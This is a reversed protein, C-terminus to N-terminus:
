LGYLKLGVHDVIWRRGAKDIAFYIRGFRNPKTHDDVKIHSFRDWVRGEFTFRHLDRRRLSEDKGAYTLGQVGIWETLSTGVNGGRAKWEGALDALTDLAERMRQFEEYACQEWQRKANPTFVLAGDSDTEWRDWDASFDRTATEEADVPEPEVPAPEPGAGLQATLNAKDVELIRVRQELQENEEWLQLNQMREVALQAELSAIRDSESQAIDDLVTADEAAQVAEWLRDRGRAVVSFPTIIRTLRGLLEDHSGHLAATDWWPNRADLDPWYLRAGDRYLRHQASRDANFSDLALWGSIVVVHALGALQAAARNAFAAPAGTPRMASVALVPLRRQPDTLRRRVDAVQSTLANTVTGTIPDPGDTCALNNDAMVRLLARPPKLDDVRTPTLRGDSRRGLVVRFGTAGGHEAATLECVFRGGTDLEHEITLRLGRTHDDVVTPRWELHNDAWEPRRNPVVTRGPGALLDAPGLRTASSDLHVAM